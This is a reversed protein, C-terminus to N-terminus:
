ALGLRARTDAAWATLLGVAERPDRSYAAVVQEVEDSRRSEYKRALEELRALRKSADRRGAMVSAYALGEVINLSRAPAFVRPVNEAFSAPDAVLELFTLGDGTLYRRLSAIAWEQQAPDGLQLM